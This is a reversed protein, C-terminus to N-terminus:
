PSLSRRLRPPLSLTPRRAIKSCSQRAFFVALQRSGKRTSRPVATKMSRLMHYSTHLVILMFATCFAPHNFQLTRGVLPLLSLTMRLALEVACCHIPCPLSARLSEHVSYPCGATLPTCIPYPVSLSPVLMELSVKSEARKKLLAIKDDLTPAKLTDTIENDPKAVTSM